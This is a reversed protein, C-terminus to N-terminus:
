HKFEDSRLYHEECHCNPCILELNKLSNNQRNRDKHHIQLIESKSYGCRECKNNRKSLLLGKLLQYSKVKDNPRNNNYKIGTRNKNSCARSCTKKHLGALIPKGCVICPIEKRCSKGYCAMSCFVRGKNASIESPRKYIKKDCVSCNTNPRRTYKEPM